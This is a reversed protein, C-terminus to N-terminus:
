DTLPLARGARLMATIWQHDPCGSALLAAAEREIDYDVRRITVGGDDVVLYSARPDGDYPMGVSGANAVTLEAADAPEPQRRVQRVFPHHIHGYVVRRTELPSYVARLEDDTAAAGPSRWVSAPSAHVVALGDGRWIDPLQRLWDIRADGLAASTAAAARDVVPKWAALAPPAFFADVAAPNWVMEDANGYICPWGLDRLRDVVQAPRSGSGVLDGGVIVADAGVMQLDAVVAELATLNAHIDSIVAIRGSM